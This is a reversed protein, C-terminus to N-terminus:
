KNMIKKWIWKGFMGCFGGLIGGVVIAIIKYIGIENGLATWDIAMITGGITGLVVSTGTGNDDIHFEMTKLM